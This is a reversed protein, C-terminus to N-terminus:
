RQGLNARWHQPGIRRISSGAFLAAFAEDSLQALEDIDARRLAAPMLLHPDTPPSADHPLPRNWPCVEQCIDCGYLRDSQRAAIDAPMPAKAEITWYSLCRRADCLGRSLAGTPCAEECRRCSGCRNKAPADLPLELTTLICALFCFSGGRERLLLGHRGLWGLGAQRAFFRESVPGSDTFCRQQGGYFSLTEDLDALKPALLKHYDDGQAYRAIRGLSRADHRAYEYTLMVVRRVGPLVLDPNLRADLHREMWAMDAHCGEQLWRKLGDGQPAHADAVGVASFGLQAAATRLAGLAAQPEFSRASRAPPNLSCASEAGNAAGDCGAESCYDAAADEARDAPSSEACLPSNPQRRSSM